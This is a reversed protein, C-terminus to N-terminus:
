RVAMTAKTGLGVSGTGVPNGTCDELRIGVERYRERLASWTNVDKPDPADPGRQVFWHPFTLSLVRLTTLRPFNQNSIFPLVIQAADPPTFGLYELKEHHCGRLPTTDSAHSPTIQAFGASLSTLNPCYGLITSLDTQTPSFSQVQLAELQVGLSDRLLREIAAKLAPYPDKLYPLFISLRRLGPMSWCSLSDLFRLSPTILDLSNLAPIFPQLSTTSMPPPYFISDSAGHIFLQSLKGASALMDTMKVSTCDTEDVQLSVYSLSPLSSIAKFARSNSHDEFLPEPLTVITFAHLNTCRQALVNALAKFEGDEPKDYVYLKLRFLWKAREAHHEFAQYLLNTSQWNTVIVSRYLFELGIDHWIKCTLVIM